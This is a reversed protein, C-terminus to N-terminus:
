QGITDISVKFDTRHNWISIGIASADPHVNLDESTRHPLENVAPAVAEHAGVSCVNGRNKQAFEMELRRELERRM